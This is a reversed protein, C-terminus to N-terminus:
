WVGVVVACTDAGLLVRCADANSCFTCSPQPLMHQAPNQQQGRLTLAAALPIHQIWGRSYSRIYLYIFDEGGVRGTSNALSNYHFQSGNQSVSTVHRTWTRFRYGVNLTALAGTWNINTDALRAGGDIIGSRLQTNKSTVAWTRIDLPGGPVSAPAGVPLHVNPWRAESMWQWQKSAAAAAAATAATPFSPASTTTSAFIQELPGGGAPFFEPSNLKASYIPYSQENQHRTWLVAPVVELGSLVTDAANPTAGTVRVHKARSTRRRTGTDKFHHM